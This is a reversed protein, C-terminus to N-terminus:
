QKPEFDYIAPFVNSPLMKVSTSADTAFSNNPRYWPAFWAQEVIYKNLDKAATQRANEDGLQVQKVLEDVKPDAYKFPNWVATPSIMFQILQWDSQQELGIWAAPYKPALIDSVFNSAADTFEVKIGVDAL